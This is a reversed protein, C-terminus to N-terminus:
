PRPVGRVAGNGDAEAGGGLRRKRSAGAVSSCPNALRRRRPCDPQMRGVAATGRGPIALSSISRTAALCSSSAPQPTLRWPQETAGDRDARRRRIGASQMGGGPQEPPMSSYQESAPAAPWRQLQCIPHGTRPSSGYGPRGTGAGPQASPTVPSSPYRCSPVLARAFPQHSTPPTTWAASDIRSTSMTSQSPWSTGRRPIMPPSPTSTRSRCRWSHSGRREQGPGCPPHCRRGRHAAPVSHARSGDCIRRPHQFGTM